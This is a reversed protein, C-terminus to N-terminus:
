QQKGLIKYVRRRVYSTQKRYAFLFMTVLLILTLLGMWQSHLFESVCPMLNLGYLVLLVFFMATFTRYTNNESSLITVKSDKLEAEVFDRYPAFTVFGSKLLLKEIVLSGIRSFVMGACYGGLLMIFANDTAVTYVGLLDVLYLFLVGPIMYNLFQYASIKELLKEM